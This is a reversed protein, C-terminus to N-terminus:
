AERLPAHLVKNDQKSGSARGCENPKSPNARKNRGACPFSIKAHANLAPMADMDSGVDLGHGRKARHRASFFRGRLFRSKYKPLDPEHRSQRYPSSAM